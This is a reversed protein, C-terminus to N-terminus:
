NKEKEVRAEEREMRWIDVLSIKICCLDISESRFVDWQYWIFIQRLVAKLARHPGGQAKQFVRM